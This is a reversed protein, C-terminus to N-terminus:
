CTSFPSNMISQSGQPTPPNSPLRPPWAFPTLSGPSKDDSDCGATWFGSAMLQARNTYYVNWLSPGVIPSSCKRVWEQKEEWGGLCHCGPILAYICKSCQLGCILAWSYLNEVHTIYDLQQTCWNPLYTLFWLIFSNTLYVHQTQSTTTRLKLGSHVM